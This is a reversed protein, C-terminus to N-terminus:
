DLRHSICRNYIGTLFVCIIAGLIGAIIHILIAYTEFLSAVNSTHSSDINLLLVKM